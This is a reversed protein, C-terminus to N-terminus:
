RLGVVPAALTVGGSAASTIGLVAWGDGERALVPAGSTGQVVRCTLGLAPAFRATGLCPAYDTLAHPRDWRYGLIRMEGAGPGALPLPPVALPAALTLVALDRWAAEATPPLGVSWDRPFVVSAVRGVASAEGRFWGAAFRIDEVRAPREGRFVCHAATLVVDPAVLVGSCATRSRYGALNVRGIAQWDAHAEPALMPPREEAAALGGWIVAVCFFVWRM